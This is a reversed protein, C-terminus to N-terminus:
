LYLCCNFRSAVTSSSVGIVNQIKRGHVFLRAYKRGLSLYISDMSCPRVGLVYKGEQEPHRWRSSVKSINRCVALFETLQLTPLAYKQVRSFSQQGHRMDLVNMQGETALWGTSFVSKWFCRPSCHVQEAPLLLSNRRPDVSLLLSVLELRNQQKIYSYKDTDLALALVLLRIYTLSRLIVNIGKCQIKFNIKDSSCLASKQSPVPEM